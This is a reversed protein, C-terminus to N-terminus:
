TDFEAVLKSLQVGLAGCVVRLQILVLRREGSEYKTVFSQSSGLREALEQQTLHAGVRLEKLRLCLRQYDASHISKRVAGAWLAM